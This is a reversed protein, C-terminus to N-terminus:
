LGGKKCKREALIVCLLGAFIVEFVAQGTDKGADGTKVSDAPRITDESVGADSIDTYTNMAEDSINKKNFFCCLKEKAERGKRYVVAEGTLIHDADEACYIDTEYISDDYTIDPDQGKVQDIQFHYIGAKIVTIEFGGKEGDKLRIMNESVRFANSDDYLIRYLFTESCNKGTCSVPISIKMENDTKEEHLKEGQTEAFVTVCLLSLIMLIMPFIVRKRSM